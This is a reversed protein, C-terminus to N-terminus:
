EKDDNKNGKGNDKKKNIKDQAAVAASAAFKAIVWSRIMFCNVYWGFVVIALYYIM